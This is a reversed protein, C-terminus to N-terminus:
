RPGCGFPAQERLWRAGPFAAAVVTDMRRELAADLGDADLRQRTAPPFIHRVDTAYHPDTPAETGVVHWARADRVLVAVAPFAVATGVRVVGERACLERCLARVFARRRPASAPEADVVLAACAATGEPPLAGLRPALAREIEVITAQGITSSISGSGAARREASRRAASRAVLGAVAVLVAAIVVIRLLSRQAALPDAMLPAIPSALSSSGSPSVTVARGCAGFGGRDKRPAVRFAPTATRDPVSKRVRWTSAPVRTGYERVVM